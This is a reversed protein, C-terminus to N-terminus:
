MMRDAYHFFHTWKASVDVTYWGTLTIFLFMNVKSICSYVCIVCSQCTVYILLNMCLTFNGISWFSEAIRSIDDFAFMRLLLSLVHYLRIWILLCWIFALYVENAVCLRFSVLMFFVVVFNGPVCLLHNLCGLGFCVDWCCASGLGLFADCYCTSGPWFCGGWSTSSPRFCIGWAVNHVQDFSFVGLLM